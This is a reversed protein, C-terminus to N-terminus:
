CVEGIRDMIIQGIREDVGISQAMVIEVGPYKKRERDIIEPIDHKVHVGRYLFFPVVVIRRAGQSVADRLSSALDPQNLQLSAAEVIRFVGKAKVMNKYAELTEKVEPLRSGHSLLIIGTSM